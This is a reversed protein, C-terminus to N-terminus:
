RSDRGAAPIPAAGPIPILPPESPGPADVRARIASALAAADIGLASGAARGAEIRALAGLLNKALGAPNGRVQHVYAASLKIVGQLLEREAVDEAGMWAPELIEHALFFDGRGYAALGAELAARREAPPM